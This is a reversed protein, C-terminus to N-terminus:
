FGNKENDIVAIMKFNDSEIQKHLVITKFKMSPLGYFKEAYITRLM